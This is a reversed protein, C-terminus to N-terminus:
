TESEVYDSGHIAEDLWLQEIFKGGVVGARDAGALIQV